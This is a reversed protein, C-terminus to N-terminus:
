KETLRVRVINPLVECSVKADTVSNILDFLSNALIKSWKPGFNHEFVLVTERNAKHHHFNDYIGSWLSVKQFGHKILNETTTPINNRIFLSHLMESISHNVMEQFKIEDSGDIIKAYMNQPITM